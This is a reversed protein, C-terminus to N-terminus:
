GLLLGGLVIAALAAAGHVLLLWRPHRQQRQRLLFLLMGTAITLFCILLLWADGPAQHDLAILLAILLLAASSGHLNARREDFGREGRWWAPLVWLGTAAALLLTSLIM